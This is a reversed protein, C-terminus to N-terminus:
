VYQGALQCLQAGVGTAPGTSETRIKDSTVQFDKTQTKSEVQVGHRSEFQQILRMLQEMDRVPMKDMLREINVAFANGWPGKPCGINGNTIQFDEAYTTIMVKGSAQVPITNFSVAVVLAFGCLFNKM